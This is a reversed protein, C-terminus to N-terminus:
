IYFIKEDCFQIFKTWRGNVKGFHQEINQPKLKIEKPNSLNVDKRTKVINGEFYDYYKGLVNGSAKNKGWNMLCVLSNKEDVYVSQKVLSLKRDGYVLGSMQGPPINFRIRDKKLDSEDFSVSLFGDNIGSAGNIGMEM